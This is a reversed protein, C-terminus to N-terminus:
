KPTAAKQQPQKRGRQWRRRRGPQTSPYLQDLVLKLLRWAGYQRRQFGRVRGSVIKRAHVGFVDFKYNGITVTGTGDNAISMSGLVSKQMNGLGSHKQITVVIVHHHGEAKRDV